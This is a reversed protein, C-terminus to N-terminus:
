GPGVSRTNRLFRDAFLLASVSKADVIDGAELSAMVESLPQEVVTLFEDADLMSETPSLDWAAYLHIVEDTFGPTTFIHTLYQLEGARYGAEEALERAACAAPDEGPSDPMGAPVEWIEGGAAYRYQRLLVIRPDPHDPPDLFPVVASAGAHRVLELEGESGDPFRVRDVSLDVIRGRYVSRRSLLGPTKRDENGSM